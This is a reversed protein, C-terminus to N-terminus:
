GRFPNTRLLPRREEALALQASLREVAAVLQERAAHDARVEDTLEQYAITLREFAALLEDERTAITDNVMQIAQVARDPRELLSELMSRVDALVAPQAPLSAALPSEPHLPQRAPSRPVAVDTSRGSRSSPPAALPIFGPQAVVEACARFRGGCTVACEPCHCYGGEPAVAMTHECGAEISVGFEYCRGM